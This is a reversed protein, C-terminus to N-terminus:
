VPGETITISTAHAQQVVGLFMGTAPPQGDTREAENVTVSAPGAAIPTAIASFGDASPEISITEPTLNLWHLTGEISGNPTATLRVPTGIFM